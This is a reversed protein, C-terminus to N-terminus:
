TERKKYDKKCEELYKLVKQGSLTFNNKECEANAIEYLQLIGYILKSKLEDCTSKHHIIDYLEEQLIGYIEMVDVKKEGFSCKTKHLATMVDGHKKGWKEIAEKLPMYEAGRIKVGNKATNIVHHFKCVPIANEYWKAFRYWDQRSQVKNGNNGEVVFCEEEVYAESQEHIHSQHNKGYAMDQGVLMVVEVGLEKCIAFLSTAGNGGFRYSSKPVDYKDYIREALEEEYGFVIPAKHEKLLKYNTAMKGFMPIKKVKSNEFYSWDRKPEISIFMDPIVDHDLLFNLASDVAFIYVFEQMKKIIDIDEKLSPGAGVLLVPVEKEWNEALYPVVTNDSLYRINYLQNFPSYEIFRRITNRNSMIVGVGNRYIRAIEKAADPFVRGYNPAVFFATDEYNHVTLMEELVGSSMDENIGKIIVRVGPTSFFLSFDCVQMAKMFVDASPEYIFLKSIPLMMKIICRAYSGNGLGAFFLNRCKIEKENLGQSWVYAANDSDYLSNMRVEKKQVLDIISLSPASNTVNFQIKKDKLSQQNNKYIVLRDYLEPFGKQVYYMNTEFRNMSM